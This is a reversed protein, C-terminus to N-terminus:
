SSSHGGSCPSLPQIPCGRGPILLDGEHHLIVPRDSQVTHLDAEIILPRDRVRPDHQGRRDSPPQPDLTQRSPAHTQAALQGPRGVRPALDHAQHERHHQAGVRDIVAVHQARPARPTQQPAPDGRGRRQARKQAREGEPVHALEIPQEALRQGARPLRTGAGTALAQDDIDVAEDALHVAVVLLAGSEAVGALAPKVRQQGRPRPGALHEVQPQALPRRVGLAPDQTEDILQDGAHVAGAGGADLQQAGVRPEPVGLEELAQLPGAPLVRDGHAHGLGDVRRDLLDGFVGPRLDLVVGVAALRLDGLGGQRPPAHDHAAHPREACPCSNAVQCCKGNAVLRASSM